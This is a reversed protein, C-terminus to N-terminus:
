SSSFVILDVSLKTWVYSMNKPCPNATGTLYSMDYPSSIASLQMIVDAVPGQTLCILMQLIIGTKM